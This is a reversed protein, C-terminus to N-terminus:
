NPCGKLAYVPTAVTAASLVILGAAIVGAIKKM